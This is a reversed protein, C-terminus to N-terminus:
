PSVKKSEPHKKTSFSFILCSSIVGSLLASICSTSLGYGISFGAVIFAICTSIFIPITYIFQTYVHDIHYSNTSTSTMITTDSIPSIHDGLVAGSLIAGIVPFLLPTDGLAAPVTLHSFSLLMPVAIPIVIAITGWSSGMTTATISAAIFFMIPFFSLSITGILKNALYAGTHLDNRLFAGLTWSLFLIVMAPRMLEIGEIILMPLTQAKIKKRILLFISTIILAVISGSALSFSSNAYRLAEIISHTGGLLHHSGTYLLFFVVSLLFTCVPFIFDILEAHLDKSQPLNVKRIIPAKGGFLNNHKTAQKEHKYMPGFSIRKAVIYWVASIAIFSYTIFPISTLYVFFPDAIISTQPNTQLSIGAKQLQGIIVAVWSSIPILISLPAAMSDVLFALKARPIRFQDTLPRMITGVTLANFYDDIFLCSSILLSAGEVQRPTHLRKKVHHTYATAGGSHELLIVLIGLMSLFLFILLTDSHAFAEFSTFGSLETTEWLRLFLLKATAIPLFHSAIASAAIIGCLLSFVVRHTTIGLVLVLIPPILSLGSLQM